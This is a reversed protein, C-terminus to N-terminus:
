LLHTTTGPGFILPDLFSAWDIIRPATQGPRVWLYLTVVDSHIDDVKNLM